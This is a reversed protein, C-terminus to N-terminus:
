KDSNEEASDGRLLKGSADKYLAVVDGLKEMEEDKMGGNLWDIIMGFCLCKFLRILRAGDEEPFAGDEFSSHVYVSVTRECLQMLEREFADRDVSHYIHYVTKKKKQAFSGIVRFCEEASDIQSYQELIAAMEEFVIERLLSPIDQFHYYFSNRNVGCDEVIDRVSIKNMPKENLLKLFSVKIARATFNAM